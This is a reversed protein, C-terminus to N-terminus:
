GGRWYFLDLALVMVALLLIVREFKEYPTMM